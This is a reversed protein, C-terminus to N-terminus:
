AASHVPRGHHTVAYVLPYEAVLARNMVVDIGAAEAKAAAEDHRIGLQTWIAKPRAPLALVEDVIGPLADSRRFVDVLDIPVPVEALSGYVTRGLITQGTLAPNIPFVQYGKGQLFGLVWHSPRDDKSSAGVLAITHTQSLVKCLYDESYHDHNM